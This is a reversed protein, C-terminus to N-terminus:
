ARRGREQPCVHISIDRYNFGEGFTITAIQQKQQRQPRQQENTKSKNRYTFQQWRCYTM